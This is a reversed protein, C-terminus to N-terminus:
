LSEIRNLFGRKRAHRERIAELRATFESMTNQESALHKLDELLAAARKYSAACSAAVESEVDGWIYEGRKKLEVLRPRRAEVAEAAKRAAEARRREEEARKRAASIDKATTRLAEITRPEDGTGGSKTQRAGRMLEPGVHKDGGMLRLLLDTKETETFRSIFERQASQSPTEYSVSAAAALLESDICFFEAASELADTLPGIGPLPEVANDPLFEDEVAMLWILYFLRLDGSLLETRLPALADLWGDGEVWGYADDLEDRRIDVILHDGSTWVEAVETESLFNSSNSGALFQKPVRITLQRSGWNAMYLHLDFFDEMLQRSDGRFDGYMYHNVFSSQTIEARSSRSRLKEQEDLTLLRDIARFEYYQYESM